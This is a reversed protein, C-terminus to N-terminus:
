LKYSSLKTCWFNFVFYPFGRILLTFNYNVVMHKTPKVETGFKITIKNLRNYRINITPNLQLPQSLSLSHTHLSLCNFISSNKHTARSQADQLIICTGHVHSSHLSDLCMSVATNRSYNVSLAKRRIYHVWVIYVWM